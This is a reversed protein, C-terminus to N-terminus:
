RAKWKMEAQYLVLETGLCLFSFRENTAGKRHRLANGGSPLVLAPITSTQGLRSLSPGSVCSPNSGRVRIRVTDAYYHSSQVAFHMLRQLNSTSLRQYGSSVVRIRVTDAYYHSSQVAFHMLRQLNSTSLRQYGSSVSIPRRHTVTNAKLFIRNLTVQVFCSRM